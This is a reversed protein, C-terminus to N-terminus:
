RILNLTGKLVPKGNHLNVLYVYVGPSCPQGKFTGDWPQYDKGYGRYVLQGYRNYVEAVGNEYDEFTVIEWEDNLGDSNPTFGTPIFLKDIAELRVDDTAIGCGNNSVVTLTYTISGPPKAIAKLYNPNDLYTPPAWSYTINTGSAGGDLHVPRNKRFYQDPGAFAKPKKWVIMKVTATDYCTYQNYVRVTYTIDDTPKAFPNAISDNSLGTSPFWKYRLSGGANFQVSDGECISLSTPTLTAVPADYITLSTTDYDFCGVATTVKVIYLGADRFDVDPITIRETFVHFGNPGWWEYSNGGAADLVVTSGYCGFVYNAAQAFPPSVVKVVLVNSPFRCSTNAPQASNTAMSRYWYEGPATATRIYTQNTAGPIDIWSNGQNTSIQWQYGQNPDISSTFSTMVLDPQSTECLSQVFSGSGVFSALVNPGCPRLSIDDLAFENGCGATANSTIKLIINGDAPAPFTFREPIWTFQSTSPIDATTIQGLLLGQMDTISFTLNPSIANGSCGIPKLINMIWAEWRFTTGPCLGYVTDIYITSPGALANIILFQGNQDTSTHDFPVVQWTNNFCFPSANSITYSGENPCDQNTFLYPAPVNSIATGAGVGTGFDITVFPDGLNGGCTQAKVGTSFILVSALLITKTPTLYM